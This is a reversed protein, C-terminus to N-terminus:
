RKRAPSDLFDNLDLIAHALSETDWGAAGIHPVDGQEVRKISLTAFPEDDDERVFGLVDARKMLRGVDSHSLESADLHVQMVPYMEEESPYDIAIMYSVSRPASLTCLLGDGVGAPEDASFETSTGPSQLALDRLLSRKFGTISARTEAVGGDSEDNLFRDVVDLDIDFSDDIGSLALETRFASVVENLEYDIDQVVKSRLFSSVAFMTENSSFLAMRYISRRLSRIENEELEWDDLHQLALNLFEDYSDFKKRFVEVNREKIEEGRTQSALLMTTIVAALITGILAAIIERYYSESGTASFLASFTLYCFLFIFGILALQATRTSLMRRFVAM